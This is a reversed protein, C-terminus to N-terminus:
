ANNEAENNADGRKKEDFWIDFFESMDYILKMDESKIIYADSNLKKETNEKKNLQVALYANVRETEFDFDTKGKQAANGLAKVNARGALNLVPLLREFDKVSAENESDSYAYPRGTMHQERKRLTDFDTTAGAHCYYFDFYNGPTIHAKIKATECAAEALEYAVTFPSKAHIVTIGACSTNKLARKKEEETNAGVFKYFSDKCAEDTIVSESNQLCDFYIQVVRLADEAHCILTIEDGGGIVKRCKIKNDKTIANMPKDVYYNQVKESFDRLNEVGKNYSSSSLSQLKKGMTNGDIYIVAALGEEIQEIESEEDKENDKKSKEREYEIAKVYRDKSLSVESHPYPSESDNKNFKHTVPMFTMPDIQTMPMVATMDFAPSRNKQKTHERYLRRVDSNDGDSFNGNKDVKIYSSIMYLGPYKKLLMVSIINNAKKYTDEDKYLVMLNGGGDYLVQGDVQSNDAYPFTEYDFECYKGKEDKYKIEIGKSNLLKVFEKYMGSLIISAGSIEKIRSTRYIYEQKSAFDYLALVFINNNIM